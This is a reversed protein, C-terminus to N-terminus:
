DDDDALLQRIKKRIGFSTSGKVRKRSMVFSGLKKQVATEYTVNGVSCTDKTPEGIEDKIAQIVIAGRGENQLINHRKWSPIANYALFRLPAIRAPVLWEM